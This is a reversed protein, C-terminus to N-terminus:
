TCEVPSQWREANKSGRATLVEFARPEQTRGQPSPRQNSRGNGIFRTGPVRFCSGSLATVPRLRCLNMKDAIRKAQLASQCQGCSIRRSHGFTQQAFVHASGACRCAPSRISCFRSSASLKSAYSESLTVEPRLEPIIVGLIM